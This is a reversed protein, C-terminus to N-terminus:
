KARLTGSAPAPSSSHPQSSEPSTSSGIVDRAFSCSSFSRRIAIANDNDSDCEGLDTGELDPTAVLLALLPGLAVDEDDPIDRNKKASFRVNRNNKEIGHNAIYLNPHSPRRFDM